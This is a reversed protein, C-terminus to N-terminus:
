PGISRACLAASVVRAPREVAVRIGQPAAGEPIRLHAITEIRFDPENRPLAVPGNLAAANEGVVRFAAVPNSAPRRVHEVVRIPIEVALERRCISVPM